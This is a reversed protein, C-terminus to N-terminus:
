HAEAEIRSLYFHLGGACEQTWDDCWNPAELREGARYETKGDHQSIGTNGGHVELVDVFKARCKRGWAHSRPSDEPIRLKVIM